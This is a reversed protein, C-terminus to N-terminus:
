GGFQVRVGIQLLRPDGVATPQGFAPLPQVPYAGGGFNGNVTVVNTRNTLNFAEVFGEMSWRPGVSWKRGARLDLTFFDPGKGANRPIFAGDVIPRAVTGWVTTSGSTVNLPLASYARLTGSIEAGRLLRGWSADTWAGRAMASGSVVLRHRQDDDSRGWDESLDFPDIPSSFFFEGVNSKASSLTYSVRYQGWTSARRVISVQLGRYDSSAASSYQSNNAYLGNPRCGNNAGVAVCVPVNQNMSVILHRGRTYQFSAAATTASGLQREIEISAQQSYANQLDHQMTTLNPLTVSPVPADLIVPFAPAGAQGPSLAVIVQRLNGIDTTNGASLLANALARLPVRDFYLGAGGRVVTTGSASPSWAFGIRPAVNNTDAQITDLFQLDYRMGANLTFSPVIKWEDQAYVGLNPNKQTVSSAGFAQTFGANNYEGALFRDLSSFTYAGRAARPFTISDDNWIADVGVRLAHSGAEHSLNDVLEVMTNARQTPSVSLTGFAAVGAISVAPGLDDAPPAALRSRVLQFRTENVTRPSLTATNSVSLVHDRNALGASASVDSLGGAGRADTSDVGYFLYRASIQDRPSLVHDLKVLANTTDVPNDYPGTSIRGAYGATSLRANIADVASPDITVLGTQDLNRREANAFFFTRNRVIPGGVSGGVQQQDMPLRTHSLANAADFRSDRFYGYADGALRNTGSRTVVSFYGGLARGLQAQGGSTVVQFQDVADVSIPTGSLGAADDNASLGDIVFNNSFNRQSGVSVGGGPVASTEAFLQTSGTNTPSVGPALLALHLFNRGNLPVRAVESRGVTAAIQTRATEVLPTEATVTVTTDVTALSLKLPLEYAAGASLTLSRHLDAFGSLQVLLDYAGVKLYTFRFRGERDTETTRTANTERQRLTVTAGPLVGNQADVVRGSVSASDITEQARATATLLLVLAFASV